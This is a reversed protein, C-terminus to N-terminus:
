FCGSLFKISIAHAHIHSSAVSQHRAVRPSSSAQGKNCNFDDWWSIIINISLGSRASQEMMASTRSRWQKHLEAPCWESNCPQVELCAHLKTAQNYHLKWIATFMHVIEQIIQQELWVWPWDQTGSSRSVGIFSVRRSKCHLSQVANLFNVWLVFPFALLYICKAVCQLATKQSCLQLCLFLDSM